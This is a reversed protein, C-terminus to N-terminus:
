WWESIRWGRWWAALRQWLTPPKPEFDRYGGHLQRMLERYPDPM